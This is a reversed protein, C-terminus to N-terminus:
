KKNCREPAEGLEAPSIVQPVLTLSPNHRIPDISLYIYTELRHKCKLFFKLMYDEYGLKMEMNGQAAAQYGHDV